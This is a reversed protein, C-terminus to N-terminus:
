KSFRDLLMDVAARLAELHTKDLKKLDSNGELLRDISSKLKVTEANIYKIPKNPFQKESTDSSRIGNNAIVEKMYNEPSDGHEKRDVMVAIDVPTVAGAIKSFDTTVRVDVEIDKKLLKERWIVGKVVDKLTGKDIEDYNLAVGNREFLEGIPDTKSLLHKIPSIIQIIQEAADIGLYAHKLIGPTNAINLYKDITRRSMDPLDQRIAEAWNEGDEKVLKKYHDLLCGIVYAINIMKARAASFVGDAALHQSRLQQLTEKRNLKAIQANTNEVVRALKEQTISKGDKIQIDPAPTGGMAGTSGQFHMLMHRMPDDDEGIYAATTAPPLPPSLPDTSPIGGPAGTGGTAGVSNMSDSDNVLNFNKFTAM